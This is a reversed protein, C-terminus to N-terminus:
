SKGNEQFERLLLTGGLKQTGSKKDTKLPGYTIIWM